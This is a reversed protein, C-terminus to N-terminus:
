PQFRVRDMGKRWLRFAESLLRRRRKLEEGYRAELDSLDAAAVSDQATGHWVLADTVDGMTLGKEAAGLGMAPTSARTAGAVVIYAPGARPGLLHEGDEGAAESELPSVSWVRGSGYRDALEHPFGGAAKSCHGAGYIALAKLHGDLVDKAVIDRINHGRHALPVLDEARTVNSWDIRSDGGLVRVRRERSLTLNVQRVARLFAEYVPSEWVEPAHADRWIPALEARTMQAGDLVFRDLLDQHVPNATEVVITRVTGPFAPHRVLALRLESDSLRGHAEGLCVLDASKWAALIGEVVLAYRDQATGASPRVAWAGAVLLLAFRKGRHPRRGWHREEPPPLPTNQPVPPQRV